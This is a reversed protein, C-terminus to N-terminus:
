WVLVELVYVYRHVLCGRRRLILALLLCRLVFRVCRFPVLDIWRRDLIPVSWAVVISFVLVVIGDDGIM